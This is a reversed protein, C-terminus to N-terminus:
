GLIVLYRMNLIHVTFCSSWKVCFCTSASLHSCELKITGKKWFKLIIGNSLHRILKIVIVNNTGNRFLVQQCPSVVICPDTQWHLESWGTGDGSPAMMPSQSSFTATELSARRDFQQVANKTPCSQVGVFFNVTYLGENKSFTCSSYVAGALCELPATPQKNQM